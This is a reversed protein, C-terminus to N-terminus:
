DLHIKIMPAAAILRELESQTRNWGVDPHTFFDRRIEVDTVVTASGSFDGHTSHVTIKPNALVNAMWDRKGPTGSIIFRGNVHFWWIEIRTPESSRRGITSFDITRTAALREITTTDLSTMDAVYLKLHM